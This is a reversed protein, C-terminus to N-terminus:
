FRPPGKVRNLATGMYGLRHLLLLELYRLALQGCEIVVQDDSFRQHPKPHVTGNRIDAIATPGDVNPPTQAAAHLAALKIPVASTVSAHDLALRFTDSSDMRNFSDHSIGIEGVLRLWSLIELGAQALIVRTEMHVTTACQTYWDIARPIVRSLEPDSKMGLLTQLVPGFDAVASAGAQPRLLDPLWGRRGIWPEVSPSRWREWVIRNEHSGCLLMAETRQARLLSLWWRLVQGIDQMDDYGVPNGDVRRIRGVHNIVYGGRAELKDRLDSHHPVADMEVIWDATQTTLRGAWVAGNSSIETGIYRPFNPVHFVVSDTPAPDGVDFEDDVIGSLTRDYSVGTVISISLGTTHASGRGHREGTLEITVEFFSSLAEMTWRFDIEPPIDFTFIVRPQPEWELEITGHGVMSDADKTVRMEGDYLIVDQDPELTQYVAPVM